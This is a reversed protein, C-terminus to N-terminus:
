EDKLVGDGLGRQETGTRVEHVSPMQIQGHRDGGSLDPSLGRLLRADSLCTRLVINRMHQSGPAPEPRGAM